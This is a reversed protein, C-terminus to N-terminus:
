LPKSFTREPYKSMMELRKKIVKWSFKGETMQIPERFNIDEFYLLSKLAPFINTQYKIEFSKLMESLPIITSIWAIDIFDKIRTGNCVIANLKMAAIDKVTHLRVNNEFIVPEVLEYAHTIFDIKIDNAFGILTNKAITSVKYEYKEKLYKNLENYDFQETSFLDLDLSRRHGIQLALATGGVLNFNLLNDDKMLRELLEFTKNEITNKYLM